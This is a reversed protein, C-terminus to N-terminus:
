TIDNIYNKYSEDSLYYLYTFLMKDDGINM